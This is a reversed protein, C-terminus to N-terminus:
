YPVNDMFCQIVRVPLQIIDVALNAVWTCCGCCCPCVCTLAFGIFWVVAGVLSLLLALVAFPLGLLFGLPRCRAM